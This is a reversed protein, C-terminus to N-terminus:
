LWNGFDKDLKKMKRFAARKASKFTLYGMRDAVHNDYGGADCATEPNGGRNDLWSEITWGYYDMGGPVGCVRGVELWYYGLEFEYREWDKREPYPESNIRAGEDFLDWDEETFERHKMKCGWRWERMM